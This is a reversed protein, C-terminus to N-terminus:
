FVLESIIEPIQKFEKYSIRLLSINNDSAYKDKLLDHEVQKKWDEETTKGKIPGYHFEGDYEILLKNNINNNNKDIFFDFRLLGGGLGRLNTYTKEMIFKINNSSLEKSISREGRSKGLYKYTTVKYSTHYTHNHSRVESVSFSVWKCIDCIYRCKSYNYIGMKCERWKKNSDIRCRRRINLKVM